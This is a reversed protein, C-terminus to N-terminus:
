ATYGEILKQGTAIMLIALADGANISGDGNTDANLLLEQTTLTKDLGVAYMLVILADASNILKDNNLDPFAKPVIVNTQVNETCVTCCNHKLGTKDLTPRVDIIWEGEKHGLAKITETKFDGCKSCKCNYFGDETCNAAKGVTKVYDHVCIINFNLVYGEGYGELKQNFVLVTATGIKVNDFYLTSFDRRKDLNTGDSLSIKVSPTLEKGTYQVNESVTATGKTMDPISETKATNFYDAIYESLYTNEEVTKFTTGQCGTFATESIDATNKSIKVKSLSTCDKFANGGIKTLTFPLVVNVLNTCGSFTNDNITKIGVPVTMETLGSCGDFAGEGIETLYDPLVIKKLESHGKFVNKAVGTVPLGSHTSPVFVEEVTKCSYAIIEYGNKASNLEYALENAGVTSINFSATNVTVSATMNEFGASSANEVRLKLSATGSAAKDKIKFKIVALTGRFKFNDIGAVSWKIFGPISHGESYVKSGTQEKLANEIDSGDTVSVIEFKSTDYILSLDLSAIENYPAPFYVEAVVIDGQYYNERDTKISIVPETAVSYAAFVTFMITLVMLVSLIKRALRKM